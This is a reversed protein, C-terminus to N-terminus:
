QLVIRAYRDLLLKIGCVLLLMEASLWGHHASVSKIDRFVMLTKNLLTAPIISNVKSSNKGSGETQM